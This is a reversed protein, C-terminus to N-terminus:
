KLVLKTLETLVYDLGGIFFGVAVTVVIVIVTLKITQQKTPWVVKELEMRVEKLFDLARTM